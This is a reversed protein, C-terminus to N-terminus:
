DEMEIDGESDTDAEDVLANVVDLERIVDWQEEERRMDGASCASLFPLAQQGDDMLKKIADEDSRFGEPPFPADAVFRDWQEMLEETPPTSPVSMLTHEGKQGSNKVARLERCFNELKNQDMRLCIFISLLCHTLLSEAIEIKRAVGWSDKVRNRKNPTLNLKRIFPTQHRAATRGILGWRDSLEGQGSYMYFRGAFKRTARKRFVVWADVDRVARDLRKRLALQEASELSALMGARGNGLGMNLEEGPLDLEELEGYPNAAAEDMEARETEQQQQEDEEAEEEIGLVFALRSRGQRLLDVAKVVQKDVNKEQPPDSFLFGPRRAVPNKKFKQSCIAGKSVLDELIFDSKDLRHSMTVPDFTAYVLNFAWFDGGDVGRRGGVIKMKSRVDPGTWASTKWTWSSGGEPRASVPMLGFRYPKLVCNAVAYIEVEDAAVGRVVCLLKNRNNKIKDERIAYQSKKAKRKKQEEEDEKEAEKPYAVIHVKALLSVLTNPEFRTADPVTRINESGVLTMHHQISQTEDTAFEEARRVPILKEANTYDTCANYEAKVADAFQSQYEINASTTRLNRRSQSQMKELRQIKGDDIQSRTKQIEQLKNKKTKETANQWMTNLKAFGEVRFRGERGMQVNDEDEFGMTVGSDKMFAGRVARMDVVRTGAKLNAKGLSKEIREAVEVANFDAKASM